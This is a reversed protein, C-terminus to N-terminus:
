TAGWIVDTDLVGRAFRGAVPELAPADLDIVRVGFDAVRVRNAAFMAEAIEAVLERNRDALLRCKADTVDDGLGLADRLAQCQLLAVVPPTLTVDWFALRGNEMSPTMLALPPRMSKGKAAFERAICAFAEEILPRDQELDAHGDLRRYSQPSFGGNRLTYFTVQVSELTATGRELDVKWPARPGGRAEVRKLMADLEIAHQRHSAIAADDGTAISQGDPRWALAAQHLCLWARLAQEVPGPVGQTGHRWRQVTRPSVSL